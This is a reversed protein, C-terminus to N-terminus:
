SLIEQFHPIEITARTGDPSSDISFSARPHIFGVRERVIRLGLGDQTGPAFGPGNDEVILRLTGDQASTRLIVVGGEPRRLAGHKAANELLPQLLLKPLPVTMTERAVDWEFRISDGHRVELIEAYSRLWALDTELPRIESDSQLADRLLDGLLSLLRRAVRPEDVTLAAITHLTNLLFHPHISSRLQMLEAERRIDKAALIRLNASHIMSPVRFVLAWVAGTGLGISVGLAGKRYVNMELNAHLQIALVGFLVSVLVGATLMM